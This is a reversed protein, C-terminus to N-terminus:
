SSRIDGLDQEKDKGMGKGQGGGFNRKREIDSREKVNRSSSTTVVKRISICPLMVLVQM